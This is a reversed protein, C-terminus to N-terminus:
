KDKWGARKHVAYKTKWIRAMSLVVKIREKNQQLRWIVQHTCITFSWIVYKEGSCTCLYATSNLKQTNYKKHQMHWIILRWNLYDLRYVFAMPQCDIILLQRLTVFEAHWYISESRVSIFVNTKRIFFACFINRSFIFYWWILESHRNIYHINWWKRGAGVLTVRLQLLNNSVRDCFIFRLPLGTSM